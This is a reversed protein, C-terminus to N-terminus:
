FFLSFLIFRTLRLHAWGGAWGGPESAAGEPKRGLGGAAPVAASAAVATHRHGHHM